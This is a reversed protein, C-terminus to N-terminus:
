KTLGILAGCVYDIEENTLSPYTPLLIIDKSVEEANPCKTGDAYLPMATFPYFGFRTEIGKKLLKKMLTDRNIKTHEPMLKIAFAWIVPEIGKTIYQFEVDSGYLKTKYREYIRKKEAIIEDRNELQACGLAAQGNTLRYNYGMMDHWYRKNPNMGHSRLIRMREYFAKNNTLIAGGEGMAITKTSQFSFCGLDGLSGAFKSKYKSFIAEACDEVIYIDDDYAIEKLRPMACVNGYIHVPLIAKTKKTIKKETDKVDICWTNPDIDAYVPKAGCYLVANATAAFTFDPVIVEDGRGVGIALLALHLAATGSSCSLAYKTGIIKAFELELRDIYKGDSIWTSDIANLVYEKEKGQLYPKAFPIHNM